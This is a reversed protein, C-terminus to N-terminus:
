IRPSFHIPIFCFDRIVTQNDPIRKMKCQNKTIRKPSSGLVGVNFTNHEVQQALSDFRINKREFTRRYPRSEFGRGGAHCAPIRVLQVVVGILEKRFESAFTSSKKIDALTERFFTEMGDLICSVMVAKKWLIIGINTMRKTMEDFKKYSFM